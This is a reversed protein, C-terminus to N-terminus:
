RASAPRTAAAAEIAAELASLLRKADIGDRAAADAVAVDGGCCADVGFANFVAVTSPHALLVDNVISAGTITEPMKGEEEASERNANRMQVQM